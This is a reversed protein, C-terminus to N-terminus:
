STGRSRIAKGCAYVGGVAILLTGLWVLWIFRKKTVTIIVTDPPVMTNKGPSVYLLIRKSTADIERLSVTRSTGPAMGDLYRIGESSFTIGPSSRRGNVDLDAYTTPNGSTMHETRFGNFRFHLGQFEKVEGKGLVLLTVSEKGSVYDEPAIYIDGLLGSIIYPEKYISETRQDFYYAIEITRRSSKEPLTFRLAPQRGDHHGLFTMTVGNITEEAGRVLRTTGSTTHFNSTVVGLALIGVGIHALRSPLTIRVKTKALDVLAMIVLFCSLISYIYAIPSATARINLIVGLVVSLALAVLTERRIITKLPAAIRITAAIMLLIILMGFPKTFNNYFSETVSTPHEMIVSTILPMLTGSLIVLAFFALVIIGYLTLTDWGFNETVARASKVSRFRAAFLVGSLAAALLPFSLLYASISSTSFSHVSFNSLAGSRTLWASMYVMIFYILALFINTAALAGRRRQVLCGHVLAVSILWPILSSNEVPDWGWYGGWGLVSYAWYGGLFIGIGLTVMSFLIWPYAERLWGDPDKKLLASVAFGFPITASAYGLFLVPPHAVMWPDKLLPNLGAGDGPHLGPSFHDPYYEWIRVFPSEVVLLVLIFIQTILLISNVTGAHIGQSRRTFFGFVALFFLWLLLSGEKGAWFAAIRYHLSLDRSSYNYVYLFSFDSVIFYYLLLLTSVAVALAFIGYLRLAPVRFAEKGAMTAIHSALAALAIVLSFIIFITGWNVSAVM